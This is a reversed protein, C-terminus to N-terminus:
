DEPMSEIQIHRGLRGGRQHNGNHGGHHGGGHHGGHHGGGQHDGHHGGQHNGHHGGHHEGGQHHGHHGGQHNGHHGGHHEGEQHHGHHGGQHNGHHGRHHEEGQHHGHHGGGQHDSHHGGGQHDGHHGRHHDGHYPNNKQPCLPESTNVPQVNVLVDRCTTDEKKHVCIQNKNCNCKQRYHHNDDRCRSITKVSNDSRCTFTHEVCVKGTDCNHLECPQRCIGNDCDKLGHHKHHEGRKDKHVGRQAEITLILLTVIAVAALLKM